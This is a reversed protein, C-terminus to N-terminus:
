KRIFNLYIEKFKEVRIEEPRINLDLKNKLLIEKVKEKGYRSSLNNILTKRRLMFCEKLFKFFEEDEKDNREWKFHYVLSDVHPLPYFCSHSVIFERKLEGKYELFCSLPSSNKSNSKAELRTSVEKQVMFVLDKGKSIKSLIKELISTTEQYPLNSVIKLPEEFTSIDAKLFDGRILKFSPFYSFTRELHDCLKYDIEYCIVRAGKNLLIETLAGLGPGIELVLHNRIDGLLSVIKFAIEEDCLFNQSYKKRPMFNNEQMAKFVYEKSAIM